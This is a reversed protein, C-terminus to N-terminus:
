CKKFARVCAVMAKIKNGGKKGERSGKFMQDDKMKAQVKADVSM